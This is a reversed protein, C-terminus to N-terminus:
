IHKRYSDPEGGSDRWKFIMPHLHHTCFSRSSTMNTKVQEQILKYDEQQILATLVVRPSKIWFYRLILYRTDTTKLYAERQFSIGKQCVFSDKWTLLLVEPIQILPSYKWLIYMTLLRKQLGTRPYFFQSAVRRSYPVLTCYMPTDLVLVEFCIHEWLIQCCPKINRNWINEDKSM